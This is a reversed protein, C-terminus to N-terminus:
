AFNKSVERFPYKNTADLLYVNADKKSRVIRDWLVVQNLEHRKTPYEAVLSLFVQKTNWNFLSTFDADIDFSVKMFDQVRNDM